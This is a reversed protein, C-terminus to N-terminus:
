RIISAAEAESFRANPRRKPSIDGGELLETVLHIYKHDLYVEYLRVINPHDASFLIGVEQRLEAEEGIISDRLISKVAFNHGPNVTKYAIRVSGFSGAGLKNTFTYVLRIDERSINELLNRGSTLSSLKDM